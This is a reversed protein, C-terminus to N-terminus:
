SSSTVSIVARKIARELNMRQGVQSVGLAILESRGLEMLRPGDISHAAFMDRHDSMQLSDLWQTVDNVSWTAIPRCGFDSRAHNPGDSFELPPPPLIMDLASHDVSVDCAPFSILETNPQCENNCEAFDPPPPLVILENSRPELESVERESGVFTRSSLAVSNPASIHENGCSKELTVSSNGNQNVKSDVHWPFFCQENSVSNTVTRHHGNVAPVSEKRCQSLVLEDTMATDSSLQLKDAKRAIVHKFIGGTIPLNPRGVAAVPKTTSRHQDVASTLTRFQREECEAVSARRRIYEQRAREALFLFSCDGDEGAASDVDTSAARDSDAIVKEHAAADVSSSRKSIRAVQPCERIVKLPAVMVHSGLKKQDAKDLLHHPPQNYQMQGDNVETQTRNVLSHGFSVSNASSGNSSIGCNKSGDRTCAGLGGSQRVRRRHWWPLNKGLSSGNASPLPPPPPPLGASSCSPPSVSSLHHVLPSNHLSSLPSVDSNSLTASCEVDISGSITDESKDDAVNAPVPKIASENARTLSSDSSVASSLCANEGPRFSSELISASKKAEVAKSVNAYTHHYKTVIPIVESSSAVSHFEFPPPPLPPPIEVADMEEHTEMQMPTAYIAEAATRCQPKLASGIHFSPLFASYRAATTPLSQISGYRLLDADSEKKATSHVPQRSRDRLTAVDGISSHRICWSYHAKLTSEHQTRVGEPYEGVSMNEFRYM